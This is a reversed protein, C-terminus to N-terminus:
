EAAEKSQRPYIDPRLEHRSVGTAAEIQLVREAPINRRWQGVAQSTVGIARALKVVGGMREIATNLAGSMDTLFCLKRKQALPVKPSLFCNNLCSTKSLREQTAGFTTSEDNWRFASSALGISSNSNKKM